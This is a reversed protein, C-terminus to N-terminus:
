RAGGNNSSLLEQLYLALDEQQSDLAYWELMKPTINSNINPENSRAGFVYNWIEHAELKKKLANLFEDRDRLGGM